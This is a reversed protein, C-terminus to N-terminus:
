FFFYFDPGQQIHRGGGERPAWIWQPLSCPQPAVRGGMQNRYRGKADSALSCLLKQQQAQMSWDSQALTIIRMLLLSCHSDNHPHCQYIIAWSSGKRPPVGLDSGGVHLPTAMSVGQTSGLRSSTPFLCVSASLCLHVLVCLGVCVFMYGWMCIPVCLHVFVCLCVSICISACVCLCLDGCVCFCLSACVCVFGCVCVSTYVCVSGWMYLYSACVSGCVFVYIGCECMLHVLLDVCLFMSGWMCMFVCLHVFYLSGCVFVYLHVCLFMSGWLDMCVCMLHTCVYICFCVCIWVWICVCLSVSIHVCLFVCVSRRAFVSLNCLLSAVELESWDM